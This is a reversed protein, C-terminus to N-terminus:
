KRLKMPLQKQKERIFIVKHDREEIRVLKPVSDDVIEFNVDKFWIQGTGSLLVGYSNIHSRSPVYLVVEDTWDTTRKGEGIKCIIL